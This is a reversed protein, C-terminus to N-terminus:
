LYPDKIGMGDLINVEIEEMIKADKAKIHDYCFLHLYGHILLHIFHEKFEKQQEISEKKITDYSLFIDGLLAPLSNKISKLIDRKNRYLSITLVNTPMDKGRYTKNLKQMDKDDTLTVSLEIIAKHDIQLYNLVMDFVDRVLRKNIDSQLKWLKKQFIDINIPM